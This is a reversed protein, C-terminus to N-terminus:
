VNENVSGQCQVTGEFARFNAGVRRLLYEVDTFFKRSMPVIFKIHLEGHKGYSHITSLADLPLSLGDRCVAPVCQGSVFIFVLFINM